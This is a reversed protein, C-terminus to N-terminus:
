IHILSLQNVTATMATVNLNKGDPSVGETLATTAKALSSFKRFEISKGNGKPIPYKDGFQDHILEPEALEILRKEYYTKMEASLDTGSGTSTTKNLVEAFFISLNFIRDIM